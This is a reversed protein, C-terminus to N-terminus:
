FYHHVGVVECLVRNASRASYAGEPEAFGHEPQARQVTKVGGCKPCPVNAACLGIVQGL